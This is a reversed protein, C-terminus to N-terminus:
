SAEARTVAAQDSDIRQSDARAALRVEVEALARACREPDSTECVVADAREEAALLEQTAMQNELVALTADSADHGTRERELVRSRLVALPAQCDFVLFGTSSERALDRFVRRESRLLFTADVIVPFGSALMTRALRALHGYTAATAQSGYLGAGVAAGTRAQPALGHLRKREVDSRLHIAGLSDALHRAVTTKGSGSVGCTIILTPHRQATLSEAVSLYGELESRSRQPAERLRIAAVKARVLARYVLHFRLVKTGAYDGTAGLYTNLFHFALSREGHELLDMVTFAAESMVDIWRLADSFEICDFPLPRGDVLAVNGLHLDGHCERVFGGARRAEFAEYLRACESETWTRLRSLAEHVPGDRILSGIQEFNDLAAARVEAPTGHMSVPPAVEIAGHFAAVSAALDELLAPTLEGRRLLADLTQDPAFQRMRVAYEIAAGEGDVVPREATGTITVVDLYLGPATRRNLRLEEECCHRRQELTTFDLFGLNVPKKIKYAFEGTLLVTSIHTEIVEIRSVPHAFCQADRLAAILRAHAAM